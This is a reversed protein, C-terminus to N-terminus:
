LEPYQEPVDESGPVAAPWLCFALTPLNNVSISKFYFTSPLDNQNTHISGFADM